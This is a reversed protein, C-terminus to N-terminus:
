CRYTIFTHVYVYLSFCISKGYVRSSPDVLFNKKASHGVQIEKDTFTVVSPITRNGDPDALIEVKDGIYAAICSYTTGLDIGAVITTMKLSKKLNSQVILSFIFYLPNTNFHSNKEKMLDM